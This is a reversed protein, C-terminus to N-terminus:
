FADPMFGALDCFGGSAPSGAAGNSRSGGSGVSPSSLAMTVNACIAAAVPPMNAAIGPMLSSSQFSSGASLPGSVARYMLVPVFIAKDAENGVTASM